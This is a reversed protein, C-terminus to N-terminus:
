IDLSTNAGCLLVGVKEGARPQYAGSLLAALSTAGAPEVLLRLENWLARRAAMVAQDTVLISDAVHRSTIAYPLAGLRRAGLADAGVGSVVVDVPGGAGGASHLTATHETEVAIVRAENQWWGAIGAILGGGGVAILVTDLHPCQAQWEMATTGQGTITELQDYAHISMAGTQAQRESCAQLAEQYENGAVNVTAGYAQLREIKAPSAIGPVFIEVAINLKAAAYAVAAAHNGGSAAIVGSGPVDRSLLNNFAGRAKFTGSVQLHELKLSVPTNIGLASRELEIVPTTRM